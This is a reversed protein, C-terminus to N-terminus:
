MLGGALGATGVCATCAILVLLSLITGVVSCIFGAKAMSLNTEPNKKAMNGLVIGVIGCIAGIPIGLGLLGFVISCIGLVLSAVAM